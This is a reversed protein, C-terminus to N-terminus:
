QEVAQAAFVSQVDPDNQLEADVHSCSLGSVHLASLVAAIPVSPVVSVGHWFKRQTSPAQRVFHEVASSHASPM